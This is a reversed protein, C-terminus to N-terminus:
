CLFKMGQLLEVICMLIPTFKGCKRHSHASIIHQRNLVAAILKKEEKWQEGEASFVGTAGSSNAAESVNPNRQVIYPRHKLVEMAREDNCVVLFRTGILDVEFCGSEGGYEEAWKELVEPLLETGGILHFHGVIPLWRPVMKWPKKTSLLKGLISWGIYIAAFSTVTVVIPSSSFLEQLVTTM